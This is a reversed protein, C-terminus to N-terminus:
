LVRWCDRHARGTYYAVWYRGAKVWARGPMALDPYPRPAVLGIAPNAKIKRWAADLATALSRIAATREREEYYARLDRVQQAAEPTFAIM